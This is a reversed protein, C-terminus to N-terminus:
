VKEELREFIHALQRSGTSFEQRDSGAEDSVPVCSETGGDRSSGEAQATRVFVRM